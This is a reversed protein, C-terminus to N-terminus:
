STTKAPRLLTPLLERTFMSSFRLAIAGVELRGPLRPLQKKIPCRPSIPEIQM